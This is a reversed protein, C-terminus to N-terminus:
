SDILGVTRAESDKKKIKLNFIFYKKYLINQDHSGRGRIGGLDEGGGWGSLEKGERQSKLTIRLPEDEEEKEGRGGM